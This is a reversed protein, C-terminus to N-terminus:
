PYNKSYFEQETLLVHSKVLNQEGQRMTHELLTVGPKVDGPCLAWLLTFAFPKNQLLRNNIVMSSHHAYGILPIPFPIFSVATFPQPSVASLPNYVGSRIIERHVAGWQLAGPEWNFSLVEAGKGLTSVEWRM